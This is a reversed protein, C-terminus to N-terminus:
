GEQKRQPPPFPKPTFVIFGKRLMEDFEPDPKQVKGRKSLAKKLAENFLAHARDAEELSKYREPKM